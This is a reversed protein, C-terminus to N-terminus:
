CNSGTRLPQDHAVAADQCAGRAIQKWARHLLRTIITVDKASALGDDQQRDLLFRLGRQFGAHIHMQLKGAPTTADIGEGL